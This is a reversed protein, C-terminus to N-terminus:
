KKDKKPVCNRVSVQVSKKFKIIPENERKRDYKRFYPIKIKHYHLGDFLIAENVKINLINNGKERGQYNLVIQKIRSGNVFDKFTVKKSFVIDIKGALFKRFNDPVGCVILVNNNHNILRLSQEIQRKMRRNDLDWLSMVEDIIIVSNKIQELEDVSFIEQTNKLESRLGYVYLNFKGVNNLKSLIHYILNSKGTNVDGVIAIISPKLFLKVIKDM